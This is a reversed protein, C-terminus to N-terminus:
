GLVDNQQCIPNRSPLNAFPNQEFGKFLNIFQYHIASKFNPQSHLEEKVSAIAILSKSSKLSTLKIVNEQISNKKHNSISTPQHEM